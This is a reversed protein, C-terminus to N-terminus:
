LECVLFKWINAWCPVACSMITPGIGDVSLVTVRPGLDTMARIAHGVCDTGAKTSLAFQCPACEQEVIRRFHRALTDPVLRRFSFGTAIGRFGGDKKTLATMTAFLCPGSAPTGRAFGEAASHLQLM